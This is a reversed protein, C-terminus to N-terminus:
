ILGINTRYYLRLLRLCKLTQASRTGSSKHWAEQAYSGASAAAVRMGRRATRRAVVFSAGTDCSDYYLLLLRLCKLTQATRTGFEQAMRGKPLIGAAAANVRMGRRADRRAVVFSAGTDCSDCRGLGNNKVSCYM